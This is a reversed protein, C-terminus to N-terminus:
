PNPTQNKDKQSAQPGSMRKRCGHRLCADAAYRRSLRLLRATLEAIRKDHDLCQGSLWEIRARLAQFEDAQSKVAASHRNPRLYAIFKVLGLGGLATILSTIITLANDM